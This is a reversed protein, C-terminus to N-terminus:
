KVRIKQGIKLQTPKISPNLKQIEDSEKGTGWYKEALGWYTDGKKITHYIGQNNEIIKGITEKSNRKTDKQDVGPRYFGEAINELTINGKSNILIDLNETLPTFYLRLMGPREELAKVVLYENGKVKVAPWEYKKGDETIIIKQFKNEIPINEIAAKYDVIEVQTIWRGNKGKVRLPVFEHEFDVKTKKKVPNIRDYSYKEPVIEFDLTNKYSNDAEKFYYNEHFMTQMEKKYLVDKNTTKSFAIDDGYLHNEAFQRKTACSSTLLTGAILISALGKKM